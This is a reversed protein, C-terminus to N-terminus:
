PHKEECAVVYVWAHAEYVKSPVWKTDPRHEIPVEVRIILAGSDSIEASARPHHDSGIAKDARWCNGIGLRDSM